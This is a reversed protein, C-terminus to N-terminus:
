MKSRLNKNTLNELRKNQTKTLFNMELSQDIHPKRKNQDAEIEDLANKMRLDTEPFVKAITLLGKVAHGEHIPQDEPRNNNNTPIKLKRTSKSLSIFIVATAAQRGTMITELNKLRM